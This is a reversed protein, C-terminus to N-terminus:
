FRGHSEMLNQLTRYPEMLNWSIGHSEIHNRLIGHPEMLNWSTEHFVM